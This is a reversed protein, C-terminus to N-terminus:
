EYRWATLQGLTEPAGDPGDCQVTVRLRRAAPTGSPEAVEVVLSGGRIQAAAAESLRLERIREPALEALPANMLNELVNAAELLALSRREIMRRQHQVPVLLQVLATLSLGIIALAMTAEFLTTGRTKVRGAM